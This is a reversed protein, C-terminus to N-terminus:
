TCLATVIFIICVSFIHIRDQAEKYYVLYVSSYLYILSYKSWKNKTKLKAETCWQLPCWHLNIWTFAIILTSILIIFNSNPFQVDSVSSFFFLHVSLFLLVLFYCRVLDLWRTPTPADSDFDDVYIYINTLQRQWFFHPVNQFFFFFFDKSMHFWAQSTRCNHPTFLIAFSLFLKHDLAYWM